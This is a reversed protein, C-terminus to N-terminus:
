FDASFVADCLIRDKQQLNYTAGVSSGGVLKVCADNGGGAAGIFSTFSGTTPVGDDIKQDMQMTERPSMFPGFNMAVDAQRGVLIRNKDITDTLEWTPNTNGSWNFYGYVYGVGSIRSAPINIGPSAMVTSCNKSYSGSILQALGLQQWFTFSECTMGGSNSPINFYQVVGNGDGNCTGPGSSGAICDNDVGFFVTADICDGPICNYKSRFANVASKFKDVDSMVSRLEASRIMDKGVLIGGVILGIIVLVISLEILTFGDTATKPHRM